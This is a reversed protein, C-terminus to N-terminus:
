LATRIHDYPLEPRSRIEDFAVSPIQNPTKFLNVTMELTRRTCYLGHCYLRAIQRRESPPFHTLNADREINNDRRCHAIVTWTIQHLRDALAHGSVRVIRSAHGIVSANPRSRPLHKNGDSARFEENDNPQTNLSVREQTNAEHDPQTDVAEHQTQYVLFLRTNGRTLVLILRPQMVFM